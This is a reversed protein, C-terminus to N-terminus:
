FWVVDGGQFNGDYIHSKNNKIDFKQALTPPNLISRVAAFHWAFVWALLARQYTLCKTHWLGFTSKEEKIEYMLIFGALDGTSIV